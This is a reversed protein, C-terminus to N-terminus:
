YGRELTGWKGIEEFGIKSLFSEEQTKESWICPVRGEDVIIKSLASVIKSAMGQGRYNDNVAVGGMMLTYPTKATSNGHAIIQGNFEILAHVGEKSKIRNLIMEKSPYLHKIEDFSMLFKHIRDVDNESAIKVEGIDEKLKNSDKLEYMYKEMYVFKEKSNLQLKEVIEARGMVVSIDDSLIKNAFVEDLYKNQGALILNNYFKLYVFTCKKDRFDMYIEQFSTHFGYNIIDAIIFTNFVMDKKLFDILQKEHIESCRIIMDIVEVRKNNIHYNYKIYLVQKHVQEIYWKSIDIDVLTEM